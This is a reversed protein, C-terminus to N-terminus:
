SLSNSMERYHLQHLNYINENNKIVSLILLLVFNLEILKYKYSSISSASNSLCTGTTLGTNIILPISIKYIKILNM